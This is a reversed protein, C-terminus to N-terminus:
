GLNWRDDSLKSFKDSGFGCKPCKEPANEGESIFGCVSCKFLSKM